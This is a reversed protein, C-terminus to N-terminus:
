KTQNSFFRDLVIWILYFGDLDTRVLAGGGGGELIEGM